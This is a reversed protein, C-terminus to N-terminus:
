PALRACIAQAPVEIISHGATSAQRMHNTRYLMITSAIALKRAYLALEAASGVKLRRIGEAQRLGFGVPDTRAAPLRGGVQPVTLVM